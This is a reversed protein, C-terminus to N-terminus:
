RKSLGKLEVSRPADGVVAYTRRHVGLVDLPPDKRQETLERVWRGITQANVAEELLLKKFRNAEPRSRLLQVITRAVAADGRDLEVTIVTKIIADGGNASVYDIGERSTLKTGDFKTLTKIRLGSDTTFSRTGARTMAAPLEVDRLTHLTAVAEQLAATREIVLDEAQVLKLALDSVTRLEGDTPAPADDGFDTVDPPDGVAVGGSGLEEANTTM